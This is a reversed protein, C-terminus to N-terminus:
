NGETIPHAAKLRAGSVLHINGHQDRFWYTVDTGGYDTFRDMKGVRWVGATDQFRWLM